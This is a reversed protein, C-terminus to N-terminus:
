RSIILKEYGKSIVNKGVITRQRGGRSLFLFSFSPSIANKSNASFPKSCWKIIDPFESLELQKTKGCM